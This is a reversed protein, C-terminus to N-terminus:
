KRRSITLAYEQGNSLYLVLGKDRTLLMAEEFTEIVNIEEGGIYAFQGDGVAKLLFEQVQEDTVEREDDM